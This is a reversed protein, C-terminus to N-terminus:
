RLSTAWASVQREAEQRSIGYAEQIRGVLEDHRGNILTLQDDTLKGWQQKVQGKFQNWNGAIRDWAPSNEMAAIDSTAANPATGPQAADTQAGTVASPPTGTQTGTTDGRYRAESIARGYNEGELYSFAPMGKLQDKTANYYVYDRGNNVQAVKLENYPIAVLHKGIGLFGGVSIVALIRNGGIVLDDVEGIKDNASNRVTMGIVDSARFQYTSDPTRMRYNATANTTTQHTTTANPDVVGQNTNQTNQALAAGSLAIAVATVWITRTNM